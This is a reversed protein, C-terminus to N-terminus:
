RASPKAPKAGLIDSPFSLGLYEGIMIYHAPQLKPYTKGGVGILTRLQKRYLNLLTRQWDSDAPFPQPNFTAFYQQLMMRTGSIRPAQPANHVVPQAAIEISLDM